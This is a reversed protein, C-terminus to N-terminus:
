RLQGRIPVISLRLGGSDATVRSSTATQKAYLGFRTLLMNHQPSNLIVPLRNNFPVGVPRRNGYAQHPLDAM